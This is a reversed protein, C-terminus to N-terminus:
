GYAGGGGSAFCLRAGSAAGSEILPLAQIMKISSRPLIAAEIDGFAEIVSGSASCIAAIGRHRNETIAGRTTEVLVPNEM